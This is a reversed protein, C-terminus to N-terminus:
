YWLIKPSNRVSKTLNFHTYLYFYNQINIIKPSNRDILKRTRNWSNKWSIKTINQNILNHASKPWNLHPYIYFYSQIKTYIILAFVLLKLNNILNRTRNWSNKFLNQHYKLWNFTTPTIPPFFNQVVTSVNVWRSGWEISAAINLPRWVRQLSESVTLIFVHKTAFNYM